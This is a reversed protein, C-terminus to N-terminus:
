ILQVAGQSDLAVRDVNEWALTVGVVEADVVTATTGLFLGRTRTAGV